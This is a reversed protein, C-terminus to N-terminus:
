RAGYFTHDRIRTGGGTGLTAGAGGITLAGQERLSRTKNGLREAAKAVPEEGFLTQFHRIASPVGDRAANLEKKLENLWDYFRTRRVPHAAWKDVFNEQAAVPNAVWWKGDRYEIFREMENVIAVIADYTDTRGEYALGALTTLLISPPPNDPDDEFYIDRHRKLVQVGRQLTTRRTFRPVGAVYARAEKLVLTRQGRQVFWTSYGLPDSHQWHVLGRDPLLIATRSDAKDDPISPLTDLHFPQQYNLTWARTKEDCGTPCDPNGARSKMYARLDVGVRQKLEEQTTQDRRLGYRCVLDIDFDTRGLPRVVTGLLFSGQPYAFVEVDRQVGAQSLFKGVSQYEAVAANHMVDTIDLQELTGDILADLPDLETDTAIAM